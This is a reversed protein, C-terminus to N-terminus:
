GTRSPRPPTGRYYVIMLTLGLVFVVAAICIRATTLPYGVWITVLALVWFWTACALDRHRPEVFGEFCGSLFIILLVLIRLSTAHREFVAKWGILLGLQLAIACGSM